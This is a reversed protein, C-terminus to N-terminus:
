PLTIGYYSAINQRIALRNGVSLVSPYVLIEALSGSVEIKSFNNVTFPFVSGDEEIGTQEVSAGNALLFSGGLTLVFEWIFLSNDSLVNAYDFRGVAVESASDAFAIQGSTFVVYAPTAGGSGFQMTVEAKAVIFATAGAGDFNQAFELSYEGFPALGPKSNAINAIWPSRGGVDPQDQDRANGSLDFLKKVFPAAGSLYTSVAALDVANNSLAFNQGTDDGTKSITVANATQGATAARQAYFVVAGPVLDLPGEYEEGGGSIVLASIDVTMPATGRHFWHVPSLGAGSGMPRLTGDTDDPYIAKQPSTGEHTWHVTRLGLGASMPKLPNAGGIDDPYIAVAPASGRHFWKVPKM